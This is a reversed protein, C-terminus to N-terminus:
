SFFNMTFLNSNRNDLYKDNERSFLQKIFVYRPTMMVMKKKKQTFIITSKCTLDLFKLIFHQQLTDVIAHLKIQIVDIITMM